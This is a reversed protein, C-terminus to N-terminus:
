FQIGVAFHVRGAGKPITTTELLPWAVALRLDISQGITATVAFGSGWLTATGRRSGPALLYREGYDTFVSGRVRMPATGDVLGIDLVPTHPEISIKWGIDGYDEGERYGRPGNVGGLAFQENNILPETTWQGGARFTAAWEGRLKQERTLGGNVIYFTGSARPTGAVRAFDKEDGVMGAFHFTQNVSLSTMGLPDPHFGEWNIALPLYEVSTFVKRSSSTAPSPFEIFPPGASGIEPVFISAQFIRNQISTSRYGKYDLGFSFTSHLDLFGPLPRLIRLGLNENASLTQSLVRDSVQLGGAPPLFSPTLTQSQLQQSTDSDSRSAYFLLESHESTAPPRFRHTAEDYGFEALDVRRGGAGTQGIPMRYFASYSSILPQDLIRWPLKNQEKLEEPTFSYQGGFQHDLQWLNNYQASLNLRLDPSAPTSQNNLELRGHLPLRDKVKLRLTSTGPEPGPGIEPYIQRDRSANARDLEQQFILSNLLANTRLGPLAAMVNNSSFYRNNVVNIEALRGENVLVQVVGNTLQQQPLAVQVTVFGRGRYALQLEALGSRITDFTVAPGVYSSFIRSITEGPLVTNGQVEYATVAFKPGANTSPSSDQAWSALGLFGALLLLFTRASRRGTTKQRHARRWQSPTMGSHKKFTANFLGLHRYGSELAVQIIKANGETLLQRAKQLRLETQKSRLPAGFHQRFLRSFHRVSCHCFGALAEPTHTIMESEPMQHVLQHFRDHITLGPLPAKFQSAQRAFIEAVIQLMLTRQTLESANRISVLTAFLQAAAEEAKQFQLGHGAQIEASQFFQRDNPSLIGGLLDPSFCFYQLELPGMQSARLYGDNKPPVVVIAGTSLERAFSKQMWYGHGAAIRILCWGPLIHNWETTPRLSTEAMALHNQLTM